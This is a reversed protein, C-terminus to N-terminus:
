GARQDDADPEQRNAKTDNIGANGSGDAPTDARPPQDTTFEGPEDAGTVHQDTSAGANETTM